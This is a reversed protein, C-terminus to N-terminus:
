LSCLACCWLMHYPPMPMVHVGQPSNYRLAHCWMCLVVFFHLSVTCLVMVYSLPCPCSMYMPPRRRGEIHLACCQSVHMVCVLFMHLSVRPSDICPVVNLCTSILIWLRWTESFLPVNAATKRDKVRCPRSRAKDGM